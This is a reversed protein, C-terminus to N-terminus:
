RLELASLYYVAFDKYRERGHLLFFVEMLYFATVLWLLTILALTLAGRFSGRSSGSEPRVLSEPPPANEGDRSDPTAADAPPAPSERVTRRSTKEGMSARACHAAPAFAM